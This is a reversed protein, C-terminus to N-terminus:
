SFHSVDSAQSSNRDRMLGLATGGASQRLLLSLRVSGEAKRSPALREPVSQTVPGFVSQRDWLALLILRNLRIVMKHAINRTVTYNILRITFVAIDRRRESEGQGAGRTVHNAATDAAIDM